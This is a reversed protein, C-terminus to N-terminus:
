YSITNLLIMFLFMMYLIKELGNEGKFTLNLSVSGIVNTREGTCSSIFINPLKTLELDEFGPINKLIRKHIITKACGSDHLAKVLFKESYKETSLNIFVHATRPPTLGELNPIYVNESQEM